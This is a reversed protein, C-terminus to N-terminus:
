CSTHPATLVTVTFLASSVTYWDLLGVNDRRAFNTFFSMSFNGQAGLPVGRVQNGAAVGFLIALLYNSFAFVFDWFGRWLPDDIHGRVEISIGRLILVWLILMLALYYGAFASAM